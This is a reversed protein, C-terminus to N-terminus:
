KKELRDLEKQVKGAEKKFVGSMESARKLLENEMPEEYTGAWVHEVDRRLNTLENLKLQLRDVKEATLKQVQNDLSIGFYCLGLGATALFFIIWDDVVSRRKKVALERKLWETTEKALKEGNELAKQMQGIKESLKRNEEALGYDKDPPIFQSNHVSSDEDVEEIPVEPPVDVGRKKLEERLKYNELLLKSAFGAIPAASM